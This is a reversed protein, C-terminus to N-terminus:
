EHNVKYNLKMDKYLAVMMLLIIVIFPLGSAVSGAQLAEMGSTGSLLLLISAIIGQIVAWYGKYYSSSEIGTRTTVSDMVLSGSDAGTVFFLVILLLVLYNLWTGLPVEQIMQFTSLAVSTIGHAGLEGVKDTVQSISLSGMIGMWLLTMILPVFLLAFVLERMSRGKSIKAVFIGVFPAWSAFWSLYFITWGDMWGTDPRGVSNSLPLVYNIYDSLAVVPAFVLEPYITVLAALLGVAIILNVNSLWKIGRSTGSVASAVTVLTIIAIIIVQAVTGYDTGFLHNIGGAIQMAGLGLSTSIGGVTAIVALTDIIVGVWGTVYNGFLPKLTYSIRLPNSKIYVSYSVSLAVVAYLSWPHLGWHTMVAGMSAHASETTFPSVDLPTGSWGTYYAVPEAVGWFVLGVGMGCAFIMSLWSVTSFYPGGTGLKLKGYKSVALLLCFVVALNAVWMFVHDFSGIIFWKFGDVSSKTSEPDGVLLTIITILLVASSVWFVSNTSKFM